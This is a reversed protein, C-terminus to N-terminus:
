AFETSIRFRWLINSKADTSYIAAPAIRPFSAASGTPAVVFCYQCVSWAMPLSFFVALHEGILVYM